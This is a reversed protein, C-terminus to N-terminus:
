VNLDTTIIGYLLYDHWTEGICFSEQRCGKYTMGAKELVRISAINERVCGSQIRQLGLVEFGFVSLLLNLFIGWKLM